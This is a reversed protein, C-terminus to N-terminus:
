CVTNWFRMIEAGTYFKKATALRFGCKIVGNETYKLLTNRHIGLIKCTEQISYRNNKPIEPCMANMESTGGDCHKKDNM